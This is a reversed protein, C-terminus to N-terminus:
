CLTFHLTVSEGTLTDTVIRGEYEKMLDARLDLLRQRLSKFTNNEKRGITKGDLKKQSLKKFMLLNQVKLKNSEDNDIQVYHRRDCVPCDVYIVKLLKDEDKVDLQKVNNANAKFSEECEICKFSVELGKEM